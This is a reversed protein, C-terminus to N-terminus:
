RTGGAALFAASQAVLAARLAAPSRRFGGFYRQRAIQAFLGSLAALLMERDGGSAVEGRAIAEDLLLSLHALLSRRRVDPSATRWFRRLNEQVYLFVEIEGEFVEVYAGALTGLNEVMTRGPLVAAAFREALRLYCADFLEQALTEKSGFYKFLVPNTYGAAGALARVSVADIGERVFLELATGVIARKSPPDGAAALFQFRAAASHLQVPPTSDSM